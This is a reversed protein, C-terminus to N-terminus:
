PAAPWSKLRTASLLSVQEWHQAQKGDPSNQHQRHGHVDEQQEDAPMLGLKRKTPLRGAKDPLAQPAREAQEVPMGAAQAASWTHPLSGASPQWSSQSVQQLSLAFRGAELQPRCHLLKILVCKPASRWSPQAVRRPRLWAHQCTKSSTCAVSCHASRGYLLDRAPETGLMRLLDQVDSAAQLARCGLFPEPQILIDPLGAKSRSRM